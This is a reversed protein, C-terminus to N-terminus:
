DSWKKIVHEIREDELPDTPPPVPVPQPAEVKAEEKKSSTDIQLTPPASPKPKEQAAPAKPAEAPKPTTTEQAPNDKTEAPKTFLTPPPITPTTGFLNTAPAAITLAPKATADSKKEEASEATKPAFLNLSTTSAAPFGIGLGTPKPAADKKEEAPKLLTAALTGFPPGTPTTTAAPAFLTGLPAAAKKDDPLKAEEKKEEAPKAPVGFLGGTLGGPGTAPTTFLTPKPQEPQTLPAQTPAPTM